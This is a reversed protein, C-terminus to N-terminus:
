GYIGTRRAEEWAKGERELEDLEEWNIADDVIKRMLSELKAENHDSLELEYQELFDYIIESKVNDIVKGDTLGDKRWELAMQTVKNM